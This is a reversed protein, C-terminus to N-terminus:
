TANVCCTWAGGVALEQQARVARAAQLRQEREMLWAQQRLLLTGQAYALAARASYTYSVSASSPPVSAFGPVYDSRACAGGGSAAMAGARRGDGLSGSGDLSCASSFSASSAMRQESWPEQRGDWDVTGTGAGAAPGWARTGGLDDAPDFGGGGGEDRWATEQERGGGPLLTPGVATPLYDDPHRYPVHHHLPLPRAKFQRAQATPM